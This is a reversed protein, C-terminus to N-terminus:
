AGGAQRRLAPNLRDTLEDGIMNVSMVVLMADYTGYPLLSPANVGAQLLFFRDM